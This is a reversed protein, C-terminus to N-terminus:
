DPPQLGDLARVHIIPSPVLWLVALLGGAASILLTERVGLWTGLLGGVVAGLPRIGYNISSFAGVLINPIASRWLGAAPLYRM